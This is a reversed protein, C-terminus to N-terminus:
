ADIWLEKTHDKGASDDWMLKVHARNTSQFHPAAILEVSQHRELAPIPFKENMQSKLILDEGSLFDIRINSARAGRNFVKLRYTSKGIKIFNAGIDGKLQSAAENSEREILMRNLREATESFNNQRKNFRSTQVVSWIAAAFALVAIINSVTQSDITM